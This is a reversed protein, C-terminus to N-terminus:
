EIAKEIVLHWVRPDRNAVKEDSYAMPPQLRFAHHRLQTGGTSCAVRRLQLALHVIGIRVGLGLHELHELM